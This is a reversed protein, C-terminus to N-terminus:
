EAKPEELAISDPTIELVYTYYKGAEWLIGVMNTVFDRQTIFGAHYIDMSVCLRAGVEQPLLWHEAGEISEVGEGSLRVGEKSDYVVVEKTGGVSVWEPVPLSHFTAVTHLRDFSIRRIILTIDDTMSARAKIDVKALAHNFNLTVGDMNRECLKDAHLETVLLEKDWNQEIDYNEIALGNRAGFSVPADYPAYGVLTFAEAYPWEITQPPYWLSDSASTFRVRDAVCEAAPNFVEWDKGRPLAYAWLGFDGNPALLTSHTGDARTPQTLLARCRLEVPENTQVDHGTICGVLACVVACMMAIGVLRKM